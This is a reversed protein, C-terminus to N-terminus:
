RAGIPIFENILGIFDFDNQFVFKILFHKALFDVDGSSDENESPLHKVIIDEDGTMSIEGAYQWTFENDRKIYIKCIGTGKKEFYSWLDLLRKKIHLGQKEALDTSLIFYSEYIEGDDLFSNHLIYTYGSDDSCISLKTGTPITGSAATRFKIWESYITGETNTAYAQIWYVTNVALGTIDETFAGTEFGGVDTSHIDWTDTKTLGYKFGRITVNSEGLSVLNGNAIISTEQINTPEQITVAPVPFYGFELEWIRGFQQSDGYSNYFRVKTKTVSHIGDLNKEVWIKENYPNGYEGEYVHHWANDYYVDLDMIHVTSLHSLTNLRLKNCNLAAHTLELFGGWSNAPIHEYAPLDVNGDYAREEDAWTGSLDNHGTPTIWAM